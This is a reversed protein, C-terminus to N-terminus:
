SHTITVKQQPRDFDLFYSGDSDEEQFQMRIQPKLEIQDIEEPQIELLSRHSEPLTYLAKLQDNIYSMYEMKFERERLFTIILSYGVHGAHTLRDSLEAPLDSLNKHRTFIYFQLAKSLQATEQPTLDITQKARQPEEGMGIWRKLQDIM